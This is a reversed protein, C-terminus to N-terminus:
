VEEAVVNGRSTSETRTVRTISYTIYRHLSASYDYLTKWDCVLHSSKENIDIHSRSIGGAYVRSFTPKDGTNCVALGLSATMDVLLRGKPEETHDGWVPSKANFDGAVIVTGEQQRISGELRDLFDVFLTYVTFPVLLL